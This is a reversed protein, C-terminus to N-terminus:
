EVDIKAVDVLLVRGDADIAIFHKSDTAFYGFFIESRGVNECVWRNKQIEYFWIAGDGGTMALWKGDPSYDISEIKLELRSWALPSSGSTAIGKIEAIYIAEETVVIFRADDNSFHIRYIKRSFKQSLLVQQTTTDYLKLHNESTTAALMNGNSSVAYSLVPGLDKAFISAKGNDLKWLEGNASQLIVINSTPIPWMRHIPESISGVEHHTRIDAAWVVVKGDTGATMFSGGDPLYRVATVMGHDTQLLKLSFTKEFSWLEITADNMYTAFRAGTPSVAIAMHGGYHGLVEGSRGDFSAWRLVSAAGTALVPGDSSVFAASVLRTTPRIAVRVNSRPLPWIRVNGNGDGSAIYPFGDSPALLSTIWTTHGLYNSFIETHFDYVVLRGSSGGIMLYRADSSTTVLAAGGEIYATVITTANFLDWVGANGDQCAYAVRMEQLFEISNLASKCLAVGRLAGSPVDLYSLKGDQTAIALVTKRHNFIMDTLGHMPISRLLRLSNHKRDVRILSLHTGTVVALGDDDIFRVAQGSELTMRSLLSPTGSDAIFWVALAGDRSLAALLRQDPSFEMSDAAFSIM